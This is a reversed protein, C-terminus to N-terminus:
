VVVKISSFHGGCGFSSNLRHYQVIESGCRDEFFVRDVEAAVTVFREVCGAGLFSQIRFLDQPFDFGHFASRVVVALTKGLQTKICKNIVDDGRM